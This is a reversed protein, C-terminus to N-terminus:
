RYRISPYHLRFTWCDARNYTHTSFTPRNHSGILFCDVNLSSPLGTQWCTRRCVRVCLSSPEWHSPTIGCTHTQTHVPIPFQSFCQTPTYIYKITEWSEGQLYVSGISHWASSIVCSWQDQARVCVCVCVCVQVSTCKICVSASTCVFDIISSWPLNNLESQARFPALIM